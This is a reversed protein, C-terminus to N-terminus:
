ALNVHQTTANVATFSVMSQELAIDIVQTKGIKQGSDIMWQTMDDPKDYDAGLEEALQLRKEIAPQLVDIFNDMQKHCDKVSALRPALIPRLFKNIKKIEGSAKITAFIFTTSTALYSPERCCEPGVFIRGCSKAVIRMIQAAVTMETWEKSDPLETQM